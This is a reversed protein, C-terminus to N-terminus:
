TGTGSIAFRSFLVIQGSTSFRITSRMLECLDVMTNAVERRSASRSVARM